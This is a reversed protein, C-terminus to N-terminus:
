SFNLCDIIIFDEVGPTTLSKLGMLSDCYFFIDDEEDPNTDSSLQINVCEEDTDEELFKIRCEVFRPAHGFKELFESSLKDIKMNLHEARETIMCQMIEALEDTRFTDLPLIYKDYEFSVNVKLVCDEVVFSSLQCPAGKIESTAFTKGHPAEIKGGLRLVVSLMIKAMSNQKQQIEGKLVEIQDSINM